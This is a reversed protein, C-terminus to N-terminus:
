TKLSNILSILCIKPEVKMHNFDINHRYKKPLPIDLPKPRSDQSKSRLQCGKALVTFFIPNHFFM